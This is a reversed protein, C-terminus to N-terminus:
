RNEVLLSIALKLLGRLTTFTPHSFAVTSALTVQEDNNRKSTQGLQRSNALPHFM